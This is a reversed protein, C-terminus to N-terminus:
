SHVVFTALFHSLVIKAFSIGAMPLVCNELRSVRPISLSYLKLIPRHTNLPATPALREVQFRRVLGWRGCFRFVIVRRQDPSSPLGRQFLEFWLHRALRNRCDAVEEGLQATMPRAFRFRELIIAPAEAVNEGLNEVNLAPAL